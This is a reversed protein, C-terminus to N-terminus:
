IHILFKWENMRIWEFQFYFRFSSFCKIAIWLVSLFLFSCFSYYFFYFTFLVFINVRSFCCCFYLFFTLFLFYFNTENKNKNENRTLKKLYFLKKTIKEIVPVSFGFCYFNLATCTTWLFLFSSSIFNTHNYITTSSHFAM